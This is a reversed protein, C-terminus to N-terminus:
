LIDPLLSEIRKANTHALVAGVKTIMFDFPVSEWWTRARKLPVFSDWKNIFEINVKKQLVADKEYMDWITNLVKREEFTTKRSFFKDVLIIDNISSKNCVPLRVYGELLPNPRLIEESINVTRLLEVSEKYKESTKKIGICAYGKLKNPLDEKIDYRKTLYSIRVTGLIDLHDLWESGYPLQTYMLKEFLESFKELGQMTDGLAPIYKNIVFALTLGCLADSDIQDVIEVARSIGTKIKRDDKKEVRHVLLETLMELDADRDSAAARKQAEVLLFQFSPDSFAELMGDVQQVKNMLLDEFMGVRKIALEYADQTYNQRAIANMETFIERAREETIGINFTPNVMQFQQSGDGAKQVQKNEM